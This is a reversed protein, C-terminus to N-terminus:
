PLTLHTYSVSRLDSLLHARRAVNGQRAGSLPHTAARSTFNAQRPPCCTRQRGDHSGEDRANTRGPRFAGLVNTNAVNAPASRAHAGAPVGRRTPVTTRVDTRPGFGRALWSVGPEVELWGLLGQIAADCRM